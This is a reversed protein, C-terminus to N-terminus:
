RVNESCLYVDGTAVVFIDVEEQDFKIKSKNNQWKTNTQNDAIEKYSLV